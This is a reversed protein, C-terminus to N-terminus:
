KIDISLEQGEYQLIVKTYNIPFYDAHYGSEGQIPDVDRNKLIFLTDAGRKLYLNYQIEYKPHIYWAIEILTQNASYVTKKAQLTASTAYIKSLDTSIGSFGNSEKYDLDSTVHQACVQLEWPKLTYGFMGPVKDEQNRQWFGYSLIADWGPNLINDPATEGPGAFVIPLVMFYVIMFVLLKNM